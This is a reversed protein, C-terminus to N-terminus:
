SLPTGSVIDTNAKMGVVKDYFKPKIGIGPRIIKICDNTILDRKNINKIVYISPRYKFTSGEGETLEFDSSVISYWANNIDGIHRGEITVIESNHNKM